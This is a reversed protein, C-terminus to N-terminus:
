ESDQSFNEDFLFSKFTEMAKKDKLIKELGDQYQAESCHPEKKMLKKFEDVTCKIEVIGKNEFKFEM